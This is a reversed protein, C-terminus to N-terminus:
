FVGIPEIRGQDLTRGQPYLQLTRQRALWPLVTELSQGLGMSLTTEDAGVQLASPLLSIRSAAVEFVSLVSGSTGAEFAQHGGQVHLLHVVNPGIGEIPAANLTGLVSYSVSRNTQMSMGVKNQDDSLDHFSKYVLGPAYPDQIIGARIGDEVNIEILCADIGDRQPDSECIRKGVIPIRSHFSEVFVPRTIPHGVFNHAVTVVGFFTSSASNPVLQGLVRERWRVVIGTTVYGNSYLYATRGSAVMSPLEYVDTPVRIRRRKGTPGVSLLLSDRIEVKHKRKSKKRVYFRMVHPRTLDPLETRLAIGYGIAIVNKEGHDALKRWAANTLLDRQHESTFM